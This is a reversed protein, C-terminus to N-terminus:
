ARQRPGEGPSTGGTPRSGATRLVAIAALRDANGTDRVEVRVVGDGLLRATARGPGLRVSALYRFQGAVVPAELTEAALEGMLAVMGGQLTGSLQTVYTSCDLEVTGPELIRVGCQQEWRERFRGESSRPRLGPPLVDGPRPSPVFTLQAVAALRGHGAQRFEVETVVTSRGAKLVRGTLAFRDASADGVVDLGLDLTLALRPEFSRGALSGCAVDALTALASLRAQGTAPVRLEDTLLAEGVVADDQWALSFCFNEIFSPTRRGLPRADAARTM